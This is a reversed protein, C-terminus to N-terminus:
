TAWATRRCAAPHVGLRASATPSGPSTLRGPSSWWLGGHREDGGLDLRRAMMDAAVIMPTASAASRMAYWAGGAAGPDRFWVGANVYHAYGDGDVDFATGGVDTMTDSGILHEVWADPSRYEFWWVKAGHRM